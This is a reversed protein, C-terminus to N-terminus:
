AASAHVLAADMVDNFYPLGEVLDRLAAVTPAGPLSVPPYIHTGENTAFQVLLRYETTGTLPSSDKIVDAHKPEAVSADGVGVAGNTAIEDAGLAVGEKIAAKIAKDRSGLYEQSSTEVEGDGDHDKEAKDEEDIETKKESSEEGDKHFIEDGPMDDEAMDTECSCAAESVLRKEIELQAWSYLAKKQRESLSNESVVGLIALGEAFVTQSLKIKEKASQEVV